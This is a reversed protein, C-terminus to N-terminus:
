MDKQNGIKVNSIFDSFAQMAGINKEVKAMCKSICQSHLANPLSPRDSFTFVRIVVLSFGFEFVYEPM